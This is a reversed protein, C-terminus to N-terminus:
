KQKSGKNAQRFFRPKQTPDPEAHRCTPFNSCGFFRTGQKKNRRVVLPLGCKPCDKNALVNQIKTVELIQTAEEVNKQFSDWFDDLLHNKEKKGEAIKDLDLEMNSTYKENMIKPFGSILKEYVVKGLETPLLAKGEKEVYLRKKLVNMTTAFTSPRGVGINDLKEILSGENYRPLPKTQKKEFVYEKVELQDNEKVNLFKKEEKPLSTAAYYGDFVVKSSTYKFYNENDKFIFNHVEKVPVTMLCKITNEYILKYVKDEAPKLNFKNRADSPTLTLDTPRIAEHADQAGAFGKVKNAVYEKGFRNELYKKAATVFTASLRTSDTRPYSILGGDGYGEYLRQAASQVSTSSLNLTSEAKKYLVSQKFPTFKKENRKSVKIADVVLKKTLSSEISPLEKPEIWEKNDTKNPFFYSLEINDEIKAFGNYYEVPVFKEIEKEREIVIKLAISQVRGASLSAQSNQIKKRMLGSLKYGIIRDLIRRAVQSYVLDQDILIPTDIAKQVADKTIENFRIRKYKKELKLFHVLNEGIAEGERDPDTAIYVIKAKKCEEKLEKIVTKKSPDIKYKPTWSVIDVGFNGEGSSPLKVVHGKSAMVKFEKGLYKELSKIKNPSEVIVLNNM